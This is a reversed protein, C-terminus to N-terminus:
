KKLFHKKLQDISDKMLIIKNTDLVEYTNLTPATIIKMDKINRASRYVKEFDKSGGPTVLLTKGNIDLVKLIKAMIKTKPQIKDLESIIKIEDDRLKSSLASFLALKKMKQPLNMSFDHPRPGLAIGGGVFIPARIGGHRARGTGKQQYIKRTSGRVEGRNKTSANGQRQNALYVRVAQALLKPNEAVGFIEAPLTVKGVAKGKTDYVSASLSVKPSTQKVSQSVVVTVKMPKLTVKKAIAKKVIAKKAVTKKVKTVAKKKIIKKAPM